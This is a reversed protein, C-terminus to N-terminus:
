ILKAFNELLKMGYKHSKEPHFQVGFINEHEIAADFEYGYNSTLVCDNKNELELHYSHAFYFRTEVPMNNFLTSQKCYSVGAWGMNPLKQYSTLKSKDFMVTEGKIWGLGNEIGEESLQMFLQVGLCIGLIPIKEELVKKNLTSILNIEQLQQMGYDFHGVGPLILKEAREIEEKKNTIKSEIGLYSLMNKISGLNGTNYDVITIM